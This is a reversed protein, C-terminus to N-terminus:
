CIIHEFRNVVFHMSCSNNIIQYLNKVIYIILYTLEMVNGKCNLLIHM